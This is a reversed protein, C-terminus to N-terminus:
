PSYIKVFHPGFNKNHLSLIIADVFFETLRLPYESLQMPFLKDHM